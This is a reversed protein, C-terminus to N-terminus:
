DKLHDMTLGNNFSFVPVPIGDIASITRSGESFIEKEKIEALISEKQQSSLKSFQNALNSMSKFFEIKVEEPMKGPNISTIKRSVSEYLNSFIIASQIVVLPRSSQLLVGYKQKFGQIDKLFNELSQNFNAATFIEENWIARSTLQASSKKALSFLNVEQAWENSEQDSFKKVEVLIADQLNLDNTEWFMNQIINLYSSTLYSHKSQNYFKKLMWFDSRKEYFSFIQKNAMEVTALDGLCNSTKNITISAENPNEEILSTLIAVEFLRKNIEDKKSCSKELQFNAAKNSTEFDQLKYLRETYALLEERKKEKEEPEMLEFAFLMWKWSETTRGMEIYNISAHYAAQSKVKAPYLKNDFISEFGKAATLKEGKKSHGMYEMFLLNGLTLDLKELTSTDFALYGTRFKKSWLALSQTDKLEILYDLVATMQKQQEPLKEAYAAHYSDIVLAAYQVEKSEMYIQFLKPYMQQSKEDRPWLRIHTSYTFILDMKNAEASLVDMSTLSLMSNLSKRAFEINQIESTKISKKYFSSADSFKKVSFLTEAKFYLFESESKPELRILEDFYKLVLRLDTEKYDGGVEKMDKALRIQLFGALSRIKEIADTRLTITFNYKKPKKEVEQYFNVLKSTTWLHEEFLAYQRYYDLYAHYLEEQFNLSKTDKIIKQIQDLIIGTEKKHGKESTKRALPFLYQIPQKENSIYFNLAELPLGAYVYFAGINDLIQDKINVYRSDLSLRHSERITKIALEFRQTKLYCWSLNFHHKSQWDDKKYLIVKEYLQIAEEYRKENYYHDALATRAHHLLSSDASNVLRIAELLYKETINDKGYDRSNLGMTFLIEARLLSNNSKSLLQEGFKRSDSYYNRTETFFSEKSLGSKFSKLFELNNKEHILKLKESQLELMRFEMELTRKKASKLIKMESDVLSMLKQWRLPNASVESVSLFLIM